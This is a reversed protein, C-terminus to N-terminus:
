IVETYYDHSFGAHIPADYEDILIVVRKEYYRDLFILLNELSEEYDVKHGTLEIIKKFYDKEQKKLKPGDLLYDHKLYEKRILQKTKLLCSEWDLEKIGRFSLFIVPHRGMKELYESGAEMITLSEFLKRNAREPPDNHKGAAGSGTARSDPVCDYFYKLMSLNLTKGFRRPRPLLIIDDGRDLVEKIFLTKDVYLYNGEIIKKFDSIGVPLKKQKSGTDDTM